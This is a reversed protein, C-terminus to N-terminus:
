LVVEHVIFECLETFAEDWTNGDAILAAVEHDGDFWLAVFPKWNRRPLHDITASAPRIEIHCGPYQALVDNVNPM